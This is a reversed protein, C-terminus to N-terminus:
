ASQAARGLVHENHGVTASEAGNDLSFAVVFENSSAVLLGNNEIVQSGCCVQDMLDSVGVSVLVVQREDLLHCYM